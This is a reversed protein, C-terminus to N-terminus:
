GLATTLYQITIPFSYPKTDTLKIPVINTDICINSIDYSMEIKLILSFFCFRNKNKMWM